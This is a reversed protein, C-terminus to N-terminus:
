WVDKLWKAFTSHSVGLLQGGARLSINGDRWLTAVEDYNDPKEIAKRGFQVGRKQAEYIGEMQRQHTNEREIQAVYSMTQLILDVIFTGTVGTIKKRTDLLPFDIVVLDVGKDKTITNWQDIIDDYNRGLRDTSKIFIEDGPKVKRMMKKYGKRQFNTGTARDVFIKDKGIGQQEMATIQRDINQEKTSVRIYGYRM